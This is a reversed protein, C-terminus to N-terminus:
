KPFDIQFPQSRFPHLKDRGLYTLHIFKQQVEVKEFIVLEDLCFLQRNASSLHM